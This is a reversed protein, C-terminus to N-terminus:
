LLILNSNAYNNPILGSISFLQKIINQKLELDRDNVTKMQPGKNFELLYPKMNNTFIVDAGLVQFLTNNKFKKNICVVNKFANRCHKMLNIIKNWLMIYKSNGLYSRLEKLNLPNNNYIIPDLHLSTIHEELDLNSNNKNYNKNAYICKGNKSLYWNVNGNKSVIIIYLRLNIKRKNLLYLNTLYKQAVVYPYKGIKQHLSLIKYLDSTFEIGKKRQINKKLLFIDTSKFKKKLLKMDNKNHLVYTEPLFEKTKFRGYKKEFVMWLSNKAVIKDCGDIGMIYQNNYPIHNRLTNEIDNYGCPMFLLVDELTDTKNFNNKKLYDSYLSFKNHCWYFTLKKIENENENENNNRNIYFYYIISIILLIILIIIHEKKIM